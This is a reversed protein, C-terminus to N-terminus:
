IRPGPQGDGGSGSARNRGLPHTRESRPACSRTWCFPPTSRRCFRASAKVWVRAGSDPGGLAWEPWPEVDRPGRAALDQTADLILLADSGAHKV